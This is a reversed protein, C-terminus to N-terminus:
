TEQLYKRLIKGLPSVPIEDRFEIIKPIKYETLRNKCFNIIEEKSINGDAVIVAKVIEGFIKDKVGLVVVEKIRGYSMIVNEVETPDVKNGSINILLKKRGTIYIRGDDDIKGIDGPFFYGGHFSEKTEYELGPYGETTAKSKIGIEGVEGAPLVRGSEDFINVQVGHMPYGVSELKGEISSDYKNFLNVSVSGTETTGYLQVVYIGFRKYFDKSVELPLPAGASFCLRLSSLDAPVKVYTECLIKFMFPVGPFITIRESQINLLVDRPIFEDMIVLTCGNCLAALMSNCLGHSHFMTVVALFIDTKNVKVTSTFHEFETALHYYTRYVRKPRGTSGTSYQCLLIDDPSIDIKEKVSPANSILNDFSFRNVKEEISGVIIHPLRSIEELNTNLVLDELKSDYILMVPMSDSLYFRLEEEKSKTNILVAVAGIKILAFFCIVFAPSNNLLVAVRDGKKIGIEYMGGAIRDIKEGLSLYDIAQEKYRIALRNGFKSTDCNIIM